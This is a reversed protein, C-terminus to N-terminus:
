FMEIQNENKRAAAAEDKMRQNNEAMREKGAIARADKQNQLLKSFDVNASETHNAASLVLNSAFAACKAPTLGHKANGAM